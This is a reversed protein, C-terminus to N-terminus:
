VIPNEVETNSDFCGKGNSVSPNYTMALNHTWGDTVRTGMLTPRTFYEDSVQSRLRMEYKDGNTNWTFGLCYEYTADLAFLM